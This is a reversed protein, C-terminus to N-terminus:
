AGKPATCQTSVGYVETGQANTKRVIHGDRELALLQRGMSMRARNVNGAKDYTPNLAILGPTQVMAEVIEDRTSYGGENRLWSWLWLRRQRARTDAQSM